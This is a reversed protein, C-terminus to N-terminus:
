LRHTLLFGGPNRALNVIFQALPQRSQFHIQQAASRFISPSSLEGATL